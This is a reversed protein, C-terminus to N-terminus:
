GLIASVVLYTTVLLKFAPVTVKMSCSSNAGTTGPYSRGSRSDSAGFLTLEKWTAKGTGSPFGESSSTPRPNSKKIRQDSDSNIISILSLPIYTTFQTRHDSSTEDAEQPILAKTFRRNSGSTSVSLPIRSQETVTEAIEAVFGMTKHSRRNRLISLTSESLTKQNLFTVFKDIAEHGDLKSDKHEKRIEDEDGYIPQHAISSLLLYLVVCLRESCPFCPIQPKWNLKMNYKTSSTNFM